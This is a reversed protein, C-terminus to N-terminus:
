DIFVICVQFEDQLSELLIPEIRGGFVLGGIVREAEIWNKLTNEILEFVETIAAEELERQAVLQEMKSLSHLFVSISSNLIEMEHSDKSNLEFFLYTVLSKAADVTAMSLKYRCNFTFPSVNLTPTVIM